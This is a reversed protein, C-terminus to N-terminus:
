YRLPSWGNFCLSGLTLQCTKEYLAMVVALVHKGVLLYNFKKPDRFTLLPKYWTSKLNIQQLEAEIEEVEANITGLDGAQAIQLAEWESVRRVPKHAASKLHSFGIENEVPADLPPVKADPNNNSDAM